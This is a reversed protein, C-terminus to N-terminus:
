QLAVAKFRALPAMRARNLVLEDGKLYYSDAMELAKFMNQETDMGSPCAMMTSVIQSFRIREPSSLTYTGGMGNCGGTGIVRQDKDKLIIHPEKAGATVPQGMVEVLKWYRETLGDDTAAREALDPPPLTEPSACATVLLALGSLMVPRVHSCYSM